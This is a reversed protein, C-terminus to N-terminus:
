ILFFKGFSKIFYKKIKCWFGQNFVSFFAIDDYASLVNKGKKRKLIQNQILIKYNWSSSAARM